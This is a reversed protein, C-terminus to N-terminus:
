DNDNGLDLAEAVDSSDVENPKAAAAAQAEEMQKKQRMAERRKAWDRQLQDIRRNQEIEEQQRRKEFDAREKEHKELTKQHQVERQVQTRSLTDMRTDFVKQARAMTKQFDQDLKRLEAALKEDNFDDDENDTSSVGLVGGIHDSESSDAAVADDSFPDSSRRVSSIKESSDAAVEDSVIPRSPTQSSPHIEVTPLIQRLPQMPVGVDLVGQSSKLAPQHGQTSPQHQMTQVHPPQQQSRHPQVQQPPMSIPQGYGQSPSAISLRQIPQGPPQFMQSQPMVHNQTFSQGQQMYQGQVQHDHASQYSQSIQGSAGQVQMGAGRQQTEQPPASGQSYDFSGQAAVHSGQGQQPQQLIVQGHTQQVQSTNLVQAHQQATPVPGYGVQGDLSQQVGTQGAQPQQTGVQHQMQPPVYPPQGNPVQQQISSKQQQQLHVPTYGVQGDQNQGQQLVQHNQMQLHQQQMPVHAGYTPGPAPADEQNGNPMSRVVPAHGYGPDQIPPTSVTGSGQPNGSWSQQQHQQQIHGVHQVSQETQGMQLMPKNQIPPNTAPLSSTSAHQQSMQHGQQQMSPLSMYDPIPSHAVVNAGHGMSHHQAPIIDSLDLLQLGAVSQSVSRSRQHQADNMRALYKDQKVRAARALGSITESIELVAAQPIGLEAVMEKAVQIADDEILHFDFQVNQTQGEVPLTVVLKLIDDGYPRTSSFEDELVAAAVLFHFASQDQGQTPASTVHQKELATTSGNHPVALVNKETIPLDQEGAGEDKALVINTGQVPTSRVTVEERLLEQGRGMLVKPQRFATESDPMEEYTDPGIEESSPTSVERPKSLTPVAVTPALIATSAANTAVPPTTVLPKKVQNQAAKAAKSGGSSTEPVERVIREHMPPDVEVEDDDVPRFQLFPHAILETASPRVYSGNEDKTGLCLIIFDRAHRSKLRKLCDPPDGRIVKKYIQAPNNCERYPIEKTFIELLCMGFAYIDVKEDYATEEYMDPAMFEPTGLVSLAKGNQHVTSLGLDGIRLDGSTGNIFINECKLDRHIM